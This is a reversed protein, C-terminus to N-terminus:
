VDPKGILTEGNRSLSIVLIRDGMVYLKIRKKGRLVYIDLKTQVIDGLVCLEEKRDGLVHIHVHVWYELRRASCIGPVDLIYIIVYMVLIYTKKFKFLKAFLLRKGGAM